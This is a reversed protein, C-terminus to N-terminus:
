RGKFVPKRKELFAKQAERTDESAALAVTVSQEYKYADRLPMEEITQLVRRAAQVALPSKAAIELAYTMAEEMVKERPVVSEVVGFPQLDAASYRRCTFYLARMKGRPLHRMLFGLGGAIGVDLEPMAFFATDSAVIFDCALALGFGAGVAPGNVAAIVPKNCDSVAAFYERVRRNHRSYDGPKTALTPREILDAGGSFHDGASTLIVVRVDDRDNIEDFVETLENRGETNHSNVPPHDHTVVGVYNSVELRVQNWM